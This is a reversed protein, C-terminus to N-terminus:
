PVLSPGQLVQTAGDVCSAGLAWAVVPEPETQLVLVAPDGEFSVESVTVEATRPVADGLGTV